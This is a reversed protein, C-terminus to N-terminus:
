GTHSRITTSLSHSHGPKVRVGSKNTIASEICFMTKYGQDPMDAFAKAGAIWPTWLVEADNGSNDIILQRNFQKDSLTIPSLAKKYIADIPGTIQLTSDGSKALGNDLSDNYHNNLGSIACSEPTSINLYSHLAGRYSFPINGTNKSILELKIQDTLTAKLLLEFQFPWIDRTAASDTLRLEIEVGEPFENHAALEWKSTRAFGHAPLNEGLSKDAAGFWPWCVPVGGRIAKQQNYIATKSLWIIPQQEKLQFHVLHGGHLAFAANFKKHEIILFEYGAADAQISIATSLTKIKFLSIHCLM